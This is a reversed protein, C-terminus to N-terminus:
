PHQGGDTRDNLGAPSARSMAAQPCQVVVRRHVVAIVVLDTCGGVGGGRLTQVAMQLGDAFIGVEM